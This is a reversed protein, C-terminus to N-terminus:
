HAGHILVPLCRVCVFKEKGEHMCKLYVRDKDETGCVFCQLKM